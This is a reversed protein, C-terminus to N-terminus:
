RFVFTLGNFVSPLKRYLIVALTDRPFVLFGDKFGQLALVATLRRTRAQSQRQAPPDHGAVPAANPNLRFPSAESSCEAKRQRPSSPFCEGNALGLGFRAKALRSLRIGCTNASVQVWCWILPRISDKVFGCRMQQFPWDM